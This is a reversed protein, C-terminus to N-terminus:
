RAQVGPRPEENSHVKAHHEAGPGIEEQCERLYERVVAGQLLAQGPNPPQMTMHVM